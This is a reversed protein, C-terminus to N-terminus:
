GDKEALASWRNKYKLIDAAFLELNYLSARPIIEDKNVVSVITM